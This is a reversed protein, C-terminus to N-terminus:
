VLITNTIPSQQLVENEVGKVVNITQTETEWPNPANIIIIITRRIDMEPYM